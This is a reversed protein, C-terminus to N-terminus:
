FEFPDRKLPQNSNKEQEKNKFSKMTFYIKKKLYNDLSNQSVAHDQSTCCSRKSMEILDYTYM